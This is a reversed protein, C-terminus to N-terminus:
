EFIYAEHHFGRFRLKLAMLVVAEREEDPAEVISLYYDGGPVLRGSLIKRVREVVFPHESLNPYVNREFSYANWIPEVGQPCFFDSGEESSLFLRGFFLPDSILGFDRACELYGGLETIVGGLKDTKV